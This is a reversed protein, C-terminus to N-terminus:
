HLLQNNHEAKVTLRFSHKSYNKARFNINYLHIDLKRPRTRDRNNISLELRDATTLLWAIKTSVMLVATDVMM